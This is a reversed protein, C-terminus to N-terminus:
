VRTSPEGLETSLPLDPALGLLITALPPPLKALADDTAVVQQLTAANDRGTRVAALDVRKRRAADRLAGRVKQAIPRPHPKKTARPKPKTM